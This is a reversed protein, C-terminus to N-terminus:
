LTFDEVKSLMISDTLLMEKIRHTGHAALILLVSFFWGSPNLPPHACVESVVTHMVAAHPTSRYPDEETESHEPCHHFSTIEGPRRSACCGVEAQAPAAPVWPSPARGVVRPASAPCVSHPSQGTGQATGTGLHLGAEGQLVRSEIPARAAAPQAWM